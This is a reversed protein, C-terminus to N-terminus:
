RTEYYREIEGTGENIVCAYDFQNTAVIATLENQIYYIEHFCIGNRITSPMKLKYRESGDSNVVYANEVGFEGKSLVIALGSGDNLEIVSFPPEKTEILCSEGNFEWRINNNKENWELNM